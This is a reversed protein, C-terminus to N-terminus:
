RARYAHKNTLNPIFCPIAAPSNYAAKTDNIAELWDFSRCTSAVEGGGGVLASRPIGPPLPPPTATPDQPRGWSRQQHRRPRRRHRGTLRHSSTERVTTIDNGAASRFIVGGGRGARVSRLHCPRTSKFGPMAMETEALGITRRSKKEKKKTSILNNEDLPQSQPSCTGSIVQKIAHM